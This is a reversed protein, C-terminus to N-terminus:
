KKKFNCYLTANLLYSKYLSDNHIKTLGESHQDLKDKYIQVDLLIFSSTM